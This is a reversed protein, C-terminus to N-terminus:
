RHRHVGASRATGSVTALLTMLKGAPLGVSRALASVAASGSAARKSAAGAHFAWVHSSSDSGRFGYLSVGDIGPLKSAAKAFASWERQSADSRVYAIAVRTPAADQPMWEVNGLGGLSDFLRVRRAASPDACLV